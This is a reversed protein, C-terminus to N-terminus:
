YTIDFYPPLNKVFKTAKECYRFKKKKVDLFEEYYIAILMRYIGFKGLRTNAKFLRIFSMALIVAQTWDM